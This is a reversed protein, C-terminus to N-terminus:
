KGGGGGFKAGVVGAGARIGEVVLTKWFPTERPANLYAGERQQAANLLGMSRQTGLQALPMLSGLAEARRQAYATELGAGYEQAAEQAYMERLKTAYQESGAGSLRMAGTGYRERLARRQAMEGIQLYAGMGPMDRIDRGAGQEWALFDQSQKYLAEEAPTMKQANLMAQQQQARAIAEQQGLM